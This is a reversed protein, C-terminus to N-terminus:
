GKPRQALNGHAPARRVKRIVLWPRCHRARDARPSWGLETLSTVVKHFHHSRKGVPIDDTAIDDRLDADLDDTEGSALTSTSTPSIEIPAPAVIPAAIPEPFDDLGYAGDDITLVSAVRGTKHNISGPLRAIRDINRCNDTWPEFLREIARGRAEIATTLPGDRGDKSGDVPQPKALKWLHWFGRGSNITYSPEPLNGPLAEMLRADRWADLDAGAMTKPQPDIDVWLWSATAIDNKSAKGSREHKLPNITFYIEYRAKNHRTIWEEAGRKTLSTFTQAKVDNVSRRIAVLPWPAAGFFSDLFAVSPHRAAFVIPDPLAVM